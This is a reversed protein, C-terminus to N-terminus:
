QGAELLDKFDDVASLVAFSELLGIAQGLAGSAKLEEFTPIDRDAKVM